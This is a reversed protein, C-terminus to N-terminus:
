EWEKLPVGELHCYYEWVFGFPLTKNYEMLALRKAYDKEQESQKLMKSPELMAVLLAKHVSRVGIALAQIRDISADFFDTGIHIRDFADHRVIEEAVARTADDLIVVHDSDWRMPRSIHLMIEQNFALLASIKDAISETPHFHGMDLSIMANKTSQVYQMYFEHSGVVYAESGIGFLKSELADKTYKSNYSEKFIEDLSERLRLRPSLRDYPIDKSGDPIWINNISTIGLEQGFYASIRRSRKVHDIWFNRIESNPHSLTYGEESLPHSFCTPNFDLGINHKKAFEIWSRFHKPEVENRDITDKTDLYIAHLSLKKTGPIMKLAKILHAKYENIDNPLGPFSGTVAIGGNMSEQKKEFGKVDDIQWCNVSLPLLRLTNIVEDTDIGNELYVAKAIAYKEEITKM